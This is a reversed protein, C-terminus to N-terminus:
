EVTEPPRKPLTLAVRFGWINFRYASTLRNRGAPHPYLPDDDCAGGRVIASVAEGLCDFVEDVIVVTRVLL